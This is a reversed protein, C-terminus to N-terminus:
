SAALLPQQAVVNNAEEKKETSWFMLRRLCNKELSQQTEVPVAIRITQDVSSVSLNAAAAEETVPLATLKSIVRVMCVLTMLVFGLNSAAFVWSSDKHLGFRAAAAAGPNMMLDFLITAFLIFRNDLLSELICSAPMELGKLFEAIGQIKLFTIATSLHLQHASNNEDILLTALQKPILLALACALSATSMYVGFLIKAYMKANESAKVVTKASYKKEKNRLIAFFRGIKSCAANLVASAHFNVFGSYVSALQLGVLSATGSQGCFMTVLMGAAGSAAASLGDPIGADTLQKFTAKDFFPGDCTFLNYKKYDFGCWDLGPKFHIKFDDYVFLHFGSFTPSIYIYALHGLLTIAKSISYAIAVGPLGLESLGFKGNLFAYTLGIELVKDVTDAVFISKMVGLGSVTRATLRYFLDVVFGPSSYFLFDRANQVVVEPQNFKEFLPSATCGLVVAPISLLASFIIGQRWISQIKKRAEAIKAEDGKNIADDEEGRVESMLTVVPFVSSFLMSCALGVIARYAAYAGLLDLEKQAIVYSMGVDAGVLMASRLVFPWFAAMEKAASMLTVPDITPQDAPTAAAAPAAIHAPPNLPPNTDDSPVSVFSATHSPLVTEEVAKSSM